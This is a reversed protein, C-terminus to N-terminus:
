PNQSRLSHKPNSHSVGPIPQSTTLLELCWSLRESALLDLESLWKWGDDSSPKVRGSVGGDPVGVGSVAGAGRWSECSPRQSSPSGKHRTEAVVGLVCRCLLGGGKTGLIGKPSPCIQLGLTHASLGDTLHTRSLPPLPSPRRQFDAAETLMKKCVTQSDAVGFRRHIFHATDATRRTVGPCHVPCIVPLCSAGSLALCYVIREKKGRGKEGQQLNTKGLMWIFLIGPMNIVRQSGRRAAHRTERRRVHFLAAIVAKFNCISNWM